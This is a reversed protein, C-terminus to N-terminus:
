RDSALRIQVNPFFLKNVGGQTIPSSCLVDVAHNLIFSTARLSGKKPLAFFLTSCSTGKVGQINRRQTNRGNEIM